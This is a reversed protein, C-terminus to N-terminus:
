PFWRSPLTDQYLTCFCYISFKFTKELFILSINVYTSIYFYFMDSFYALMNKKLYPYMWIDMDVNVVCNMVVNTNINTFRIWINVVDIKMNTRIQINGRTIHLVFHSLSYGLRDRSRVNPM